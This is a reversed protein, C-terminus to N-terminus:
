KSRHHKQKRTRKRKSYKKSKKTKKKYKKLSGGGTNPYFNKNRKSLNTKIKKIIEDEDIKLDHIQQKEENIINMIEVFLLNKSFNEQEIDTLNTNELKSAKNTMLMKFTTRDYVYYRETNILNILDTDNKQKIKDILDILSDKNETINIYKKKAQYVSSYYDIYDQLNKSKLFEEDLYAPKEKTRGLPDPGIAEISSPKNDRLM